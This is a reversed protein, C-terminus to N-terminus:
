FVPRAPPNLLRNASANPISRHTPMRSPFPRFGPLLTTVFVDGNRIMGLPQFNGPANVFLLQALLAIFNRSHIVPHFPGALANAHQAGDFQIKGRTPLPIHLRASQPFQINHQPTKMRRQAFFLILRRPIQRRQAVRRDVNQSM